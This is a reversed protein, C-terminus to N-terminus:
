LVAELAEDCGRYAKALRKQAEIRAGWTESPTLGATRRDRVVCPHAANRRIYLFSEDDIKGARGSLLAIRDRFTATTMFDFTGQANM